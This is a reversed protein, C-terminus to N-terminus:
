LFRGTEPDYRSNSAPIWGGRGDSIISGDAVGTRVVSIQHRVYSELFPLAMGLMINYPPPAFRVGARTLDLLINEVRDLDEPIM